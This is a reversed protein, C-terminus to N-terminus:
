KDKKSFLMVQVGRYYKQTLLNFTKNLTQEILSNPDYSHSKIVWVNKYNATIKGLDKINNEDVPLEEEYPSLPFGIKTLDNRKSYYDFNYKRSRAANFVILDQSTAQGEVFSVVGKWDYKKNMSYYNTLNNLSLSVIVTLIIIRVTSSVNMLGKSILLYFPILAILVYREHYIPFFIKSIALLTVFPMLLWLFLLYYINKKLSLTKENLFLLIIFILFLSESGAFSIFTKIVSSISMPPAWFFLSASKEKYYTMMTIIWPLFLTLIIGQSIIWKKISLKLDKNFFFHQTLVYINQALIIPLGSYHNYILLTNSIIFGALIKIDNNELLRIFFYISMLSLFLTLIYPRAEQSYFIHSTSIGILFACLIGAHKDFILKSIKYSMLITLVGFIVSLFRVSFESKGFFSIGLHLLMYHLPQQGSIVLEKFIESINNLSSIWISQGEDFWIQTNGLDYVRLFLSIILILFLKGKLHTKESEM